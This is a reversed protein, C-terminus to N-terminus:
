VAVSMVNNYGMSQCSASSGDVSDSIMGSSEFSNTGEIKSLEPTLPIVNLTHLLLMGELRSHAEELVPPPGCKSITLTQTEPTDSEIQAPSSLSTKVFPVTSSPAGNRNHSTDIVSKNKIKSLTASLLDKGDEMAVQGLALPQHPLSSILSCQSSCSPPPPLSALWVSLHFHSTPPDSAISSCTFPRHCYQTPLV